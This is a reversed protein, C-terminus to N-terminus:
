RSVTSLLTRATWADLLPPVVSTRRGPTHTLAYRVAAPTAGPVASLLLAATGTVFPAAASTGSLCARSGPATIRDGPAGIGDRGISRGLNSQPLPRGTRDYAVVPITWPHATLVTAGVRGQNGAAVVVITGRDAAHDLATELAGDRAGSPSPAPQALSLNLVHAGADVAETIATALEGTRVGTLCTGPRGSAAQDTFLPRVLLTCGPCIGGPAAALLAAVFTGHACCVDDRGCADPAGPRTGPRLERVTARAAAPDVRGDILAVVVSPRGTTRERLRTLGVQDLPEM